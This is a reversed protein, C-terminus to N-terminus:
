EVVELHGELVGYRTATPSTVLTPQQEDLACGADYGLSNAYREQGLHGRRGERM